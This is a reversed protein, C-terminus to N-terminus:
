DKVLSIKRSTSVRQFKNRFTSKDKKQFYKGKHGELLSKRKQVFNVEATKCKLYM